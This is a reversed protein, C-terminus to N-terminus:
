DRSHLRAFGVQTPWASQSWMLVGWAGLLLAGIIDGRHWAHLGDAPVYICEGAKLKFLNMFFACIFAGADGPYDENVLLFTQALGADSSGTDVQLASDGDKKCRDALQHVLQEM